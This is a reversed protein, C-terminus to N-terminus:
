PEPPPTPLHPHALTSSTTPSSQSLASNSASFPISSPDASKPPSYGNDDRMAQLTTFLDQPHLCLIRDFDM